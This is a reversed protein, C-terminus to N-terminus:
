IKLGEFQQMAKLVSEKQAEFEAKKKSNGERVAEPVKDAYGPAEMQRFCLLCRSFAVVSGDCCGHLSSCLFVLSFLLFIYLDSFM